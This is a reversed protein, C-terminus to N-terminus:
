GPPASGDPAGPFNGVVCGSMSARDAAFGVLFCMVNTTSEGFTVTHDTTNEYHCTVRTVDGANLTLNLLEIRQDDFNYPNREFVKTLHDASPGVEFTLSTGLLHMHPFAAVFNITEPVTCVSEVTSPQQPPLSVNFNGLAYASMPRPNQITSPHLHIEASDTISKSTTNLLHLQSLLRTGAPLVQGVGDPFHIESAGAGALFIPEWVFRFLVDCDSAGEPENGSTKAFVMHHLFPKAPKTYGDVVLDEELTQTYCIFREQGPDITFRETRFTVEDGSRHIGPTQDVVVEPNSPPAEGGGGCAVLGGLALLLWFPCSQRSSPGASSSIGSRTEEKAM